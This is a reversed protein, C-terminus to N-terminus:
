HNLQKLVTMVVCGHLATFLRILSSFQQATFCVVWPQEEHSLPGDHHKLFSFNPRAHLNWLSADIFFLYANQM